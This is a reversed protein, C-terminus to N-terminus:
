SFMTFCPKFIYKNVSEFTLSFSLYQFLVFLSFNLYNYKFTNINM